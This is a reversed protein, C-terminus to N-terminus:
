RGLARRAALSAKSDGGYTARLVMVHHRLGSAIHAERRIWWPSGKPTPEFADKPWNSKAERERRDSERSRPRAIPIERLSENPTLPQLIDQGLESPQRQPPYHCADFRMTQSACSASLHSAAQFTESGGIPDFVPTGIQPHGASWIESPELSGSAVPKMPTPHSVQAPRHLESNATTPRRHEGRFSRMSGVSTPLAPASSPRPLAPAKRHQAALTAVSAASGDDPHQGALEATGVGAGIKAHAAAQALVSVGAAILVGGRKAGETAAREWAPSRAMSMSNGRLKKSGRSQGPAPPADRHELAPQMAGHYCRGLMGGVGGSLSPAFSPAKRVASSQNADQISPPLTSAETARLSGAASTEEVPSPVPVPTQKRHTIVINHKPRQTEEAGGPKPRRLAVDSPAPAITATSSGDLKPPDRWAPRMRERERAAHAAPGHAAIAATGRAAMPLLRSMTEDLQESVARVVALGLHAALARRDTRLFRCEGARACFTIGARSSTNAAEALADTSAVDYLSGKGLVLLQRPPRWPRLVDRAAVIVEGSEVLVIGSGKLSASTVAVHQGKPIVESRMLRAVDNLEDIKANAFAPMSSLLAVRARREREEDALAELARLRSRAPWRSSAASM